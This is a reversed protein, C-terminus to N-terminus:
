LWEQNHANLSPPFWHMIALFQQPPISCKTDYFYYDDAVIMERGMNLICVGIM